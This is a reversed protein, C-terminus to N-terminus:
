QAPTFKIQFVYIPGNAGFFFKGPKKADYVVEFAGKDNLIRSYVEEGNFFLKAERTELIGKPKAIIQVTGPVATEMAYCMDGKGFVKNVPTEPTLKTWFANGVCTASMKAGFRTGDALTLKCEAAKATIAHHGAGGRLYLGNMDVIEEALVTNDGKDGFNWVTADKVKTQASVSLTLALGMLAVMVRKM